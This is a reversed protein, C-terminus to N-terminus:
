KRIKQTYHMIRCFMEQGLLNIMRARRIYTPGQNKSIALPYVKQERLKSLYHKRETYFDRAVISLINAVVMGCMRDLWICGANERKLDILNLLVQFLSELNHRKKDIHQVTTISGQRILYNYVVRTSSNVRKAKLLLRPTWDADEFNIGWTFLCGDLLARRVMFQWAYCAYGLRENLFTVGDMVETCQDVKHSHKYPQFVGYQGNVIRVNQYDFRLVDLQEQEMQALLRGMVNPEVYDDSDVFQVYTGRAVAIGSNRAASLGGNAQHIVQMDPADSRQPAEALLTDCLEGSGDTSGDDVLIVEYESGAIDQAWLSEVCKRLYARVNYIPM